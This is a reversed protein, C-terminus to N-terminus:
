IRYHLFCHLNLLSVMGFEDSMGIAAPHIKRVLVLEVLQRKLIEFLETAEAVQSASRFKTTIRRFSLDCKERLFWRCWSESPCWPVPDDRVWQEWKKQIVLQVTPTGFGPIDVLDLLLSRLDAYRTPPFYQPRGRPEAKGGYLEQQQQLLDGLNPKVM